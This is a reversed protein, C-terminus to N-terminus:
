QFKWSMSTWYLRGFNTLIEFELTQNEGKKTTKKLETSISPNTKDDHCLENMIMVIWFIREYIDKLTFRQRYFHGESHDEVMLINQSRM